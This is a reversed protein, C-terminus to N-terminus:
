IRSHCRRGTRVGLDGRVGSCREAGSEVALGTLRNGSYTATIDDLLGFEGTGDPLRDTMGWRKMATINGRPDYSYTSSYDASIIM